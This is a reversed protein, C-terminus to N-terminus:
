PLTRHVPQGCPVGARSQESGNKESAALRLKGIVAGGSSCVPPSHLAFPKLRVVGAGCSAKASLCNFRAMVMESEIFAIDLLGWSQISICRARTLFQGFSSASFM